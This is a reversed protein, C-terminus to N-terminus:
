LIRWKIEFQQEKVFLGNVTDVVDQRDVQRCDKVEVGDVGGMVGRYSHLRILTLDSIVQARDYPASGNRQDAISAFNFISVAFMSAGDLSREISESELAFVIHDPVVTDKDVPLGQVPFMRDEVLAVVGADGLVHARIAEGITM